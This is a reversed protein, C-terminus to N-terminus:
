SILNCLNLFFGSFEIFALVKEGGAACKEREIITELDRQLYFLDLMLSLLM